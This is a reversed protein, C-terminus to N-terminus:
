IPRAYRVQQLNARIPREIRIRYRGIKVSRAEATESTPLARPCDVALTSALRPIAKDLSVSGTYGGNARVARMLPSTSNFSPILFSPVMAEAITILPWGM